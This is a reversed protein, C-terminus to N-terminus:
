RSEGFSRRARRLLGRRRAERADGPRAAGRRRASAAPAPPLAGSGACPAPGVEHEDRRQDVEARALGVPQAAAFRSPMRVPKGTKLQSLRVFLPSTRSSGSRVSTQFSRWARSASSSCPMEGARIRIVPAGTPSGHNSQRASGCGRPTRRRPRARGTAASRGRGTSRRTRRASRPRTRGASARAGASARRAARPPRTGSGATGPCRVASPRRRARRAAPARRAATRRLRGM